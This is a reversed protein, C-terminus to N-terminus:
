FLPASDDELAKNEQVAVRFALGLFPINRKKIHVSLPM